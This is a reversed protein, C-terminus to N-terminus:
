NDIMRCMSSRKGLKDLDKFISFVIKKNKEDLNGMPEDAFIYSTERLIVRALSVM